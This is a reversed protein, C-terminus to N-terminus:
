RAGARLPPRTAAVAKRLKYLAEALVGRLVSHSFAARQGEPVCAALTPVVQELARKEDKSTIPATVLRHTAAPDARAVCDGVVREFVVTAPIEAGNGEFEAAIALPPVADLVPPPSRGFDHRYLASFLTERFLKANFRLRTTGFRPPMCHSPAIRLAAQQFAPGEPIIRLYYEAQARLARERIVCASFEAMTREAEESSLPHESPPIAPAPLLAATLLVSAASATM